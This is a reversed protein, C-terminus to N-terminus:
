PAGAEDPGLTCETGCEAAKGCNYVSEAINLPLLIPDDPPLGQDNNRYRCFCNQICSPLVAAPAGCLMEIDTSSRPGADPGGGAAALGPGLENGCENVMCELMLKCARDGYCTNLPACCAGSFCKDCQANRILVASQDLQCVPLGCDAGCSTRMCRYADQSEQTASIKHKEDSTCGKEDAAGGLGAVLVCNHADHVRQACGDQRQCRGVVDCCHDELCRSCNGDDEGPDRKADLTVPDCTESPLDFTTCSFTALGGFLVGLVLAHRLRM